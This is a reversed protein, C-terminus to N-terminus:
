LCYGDGGLNGSCCEGPNAGLVGAPACQCIGDMCNHECCIDVGLTCPSGLVLCTPEPAGCVRGTCVGGLGCSNGCAGCNGANSSLDVCEGGCATQGEPCSEPPPSDGPCVFGINTVDTCRTNLSVGDLCCLAAFNGQCCEADANCAVGLTRCTGCFGDANCPQGNCCGGTGGHSCEFGDAVCECTDDQGCFGVCCDTDATCSGGSQACAHPAPGVVDACQGLGCIGSACVNGCAGCNGVDNMLDACFGGCDDFGLEECTQCLGDKCVASLCGVGCKGCNVPDTQLDVCAGKCETQGTPCASTTATPGTTAEATPETTAKARSKATATATANRNTNRAPGGGAATAAATRGTTGATTGTGGTGGGGGTGGTRKATAHWDGLDGPQPGTALGDVAGQCTTLEQEGVGVVVVARGQGAAIRLQLSRGTAQGVVPLNTGNPLRLTGKDIGGTETLTFSLEGQLEGPKGAGAALVQGASPGQRVTAVFALTCAGGQATAPSRRLGLASFLGGAALAGVASRRTATGAVSKAIADFRDGDM